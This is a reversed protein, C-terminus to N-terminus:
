PRASWPGAASAPEFGTWPRPPEFTRSTSRRGDCQQRERSSRDAGLLGRTRARRASDERRSGLLQSESGGFPSHEPEQVPQRLLAWLHISSLRAALALQSRDADSGHAGRGSPPRPSREQRRRRPGHGRAPGAASSAAGARRGCRCRPGVGGGRGLTESARWTGASRWFELDSCM